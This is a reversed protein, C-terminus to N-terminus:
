FSEATGELTVVEETLSYNILTVTVFSGNPLRQYRSPLPIAGTNGVM